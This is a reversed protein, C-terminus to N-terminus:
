ILWEHQLLEKASKRQEPDITLMGRVFDIFEPVRTLNGKDDFFSSVNKGRKLLSSPFPGLIEIMKALRDDDVTWTGYKSAKGSFPVYGQVFEIMLCGLSWINVGPGWEAGLTVEPARLAPSQISDTLHRDTWSSVGFDVIRIHPEKMESVLPTRIVERLPVVAILELGAAKLLASTLNCPNVSWAGATM